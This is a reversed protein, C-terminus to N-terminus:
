KNRDNTREKKRGKRRGEKREKRRGKMREENREEKRGKWRQKFPNEFILMVYIEIRNGENLRQEYKNEM